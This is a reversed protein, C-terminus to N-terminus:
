CAVSVESAFTRVSWKRERLTQVAAAPVLWACWGAVAVSGRQGRLCGHRGRRERPELVERPDLLLFSVDFRGDLVQGLRRVEVM